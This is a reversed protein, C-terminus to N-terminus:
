KVFPTCAHRASEDAAPEPVAIRGLDVAGERVIVVFEPLQLRLFQLREEAALVEGADVDGNGILLRDDGQEILEGLGGTGDARHIGNDAPASLEISVVGVEHAHRREDAVNPERELPFLHQDEARAARRLRGHGDRATEARRLHVTEGATAAVACEGILVGGAQVRVRVHEDVRGGAPHIGGDFAHQLRARAPDGGLAPEVHEGRLGGVRTGEEAATLRRLAVNVEGILGDAALHLVDDEDAHGGGALAGDAM